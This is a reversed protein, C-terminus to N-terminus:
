VISMHRSHSMMYRGFMPINEFGLSAQAGYWMHSYVMSPYSGPPPPPYELKKQMRLSPGLM